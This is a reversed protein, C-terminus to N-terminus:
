PLLQPLVLSITTGEEVSSKIVLSGNHLHAIRDAITLGLGSGQTSRSFEGRYLRETLKPIEQPDIPNGGNHVAICTDTGDKFIKLTVPEKADGYRIANAILNSVARALLTEDGSFQKQLISIALHSSRQILQPEFREHLERAFSESDIVTPTATAETSELRMLIELDNILVEMRKMERLSREFRTPEAKLIGDMMGELQAKVSAVPTRLDHAIDQSWQSRITREHLLRQRLSEVSQAIRILEDSGELRVATAIDGQTMAHLSKALTDAPRSVRRSFYLAAILAIGLSLVLSIMLVFIMTRLLTQNAIDTSFSEEGTAYFGVLNNDVYVPKMQAILNRGVNGHMGMGRSGSILQRNHDYIALPGAYTTIDIPSNPNTLISRATDYAQSNRVQRWQVESQHFGIGILLAVVALQIIFAIGFVLFTKKVLTM